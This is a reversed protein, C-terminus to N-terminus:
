EMKRYSKVSYGDVVGGVGGGKKELKYELWGDNSLKFDITMVSTTEVKDLGVEVHDVNKDLAIKSIVNKEIDVKFQYDSAQTQDSLTEVFGNGYDVPFALGTVGEDNVRGRWIFVGITVAVAVLLVLPIASMVGRWRDIFDYFMAAFHNEGIRSEQSENFSVPVKEMGGDDQIEVRREYAFDKTNFNGAAMEAGVPGLAATMADISSEERISKLSMDVAEEKKGSMREKVYEATIRDVEERTMGKAAQVFIKAPDDSGVAAGAAPSGSGVTAGAVAASAAPSGSGGAGKEYKGGVERDIKEQLKLKLELKFDEDIAIKEVTKLRALFSHLEGFYIQSSEGKDGFLVKYGKKLVQYIIPGIVAEEIGLVYKVEGDTIEEFFKLKIIEREKLILGAFFTEAQQKLKFEDDYVGNLVSAGDFVPSKIEPLGGITKKFYPQLREWALRYLWTSFSVDLPVSAAQGFADMMVIEVVTKIKEPDDIRRVVYRYLAPYFEDFLPIFQRSDTKLEEKFHIEAQLDM